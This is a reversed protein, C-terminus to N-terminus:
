NRKKKKLHYERVVTPCKLRSVNRKRGTNTTDPVIEIIAEKGTSYLSNAEAHSLLDKVILGKQKARNDILTMVLGIEWLMVGARKGLHKVDSKDLFKMRPINGCEDGCHWYLYMAQLNLKPFKWGPPVRRYNNEGHKFERLLRASRSRRREAGSPNSENGGRTVIGNAIMQKITAMDDSMTVIKPSEGVARIIQDISLGGRRDRTDLMAEIKSPLEDFCEKLGRIYGLLLTHPPIGSPQSFYSIKDGEWPMAVTAYQRLDSVRPNTFLPTKRLPSDPPSLEVLAGSKNCIKTDYVQRHRPSSKRARKTTIATPVSVTGPKRHWFHRRPM